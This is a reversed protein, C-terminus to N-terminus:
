PQKSQNIRDIIRYYEESASGCPHHPREFNFHMAAGRSCPEWNPPPPMFYVRRYALEMAMKALGLM